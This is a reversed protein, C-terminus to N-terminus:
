LKNIIPDQPQKIIYIGYESEAWIRKSTEGKKEIIRSNLAGCGSIFLADSL